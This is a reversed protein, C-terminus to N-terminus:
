KADHHRTLYQDFRFSYIFRPISCTKLSQSLNYYIYLTLTAIADQTGVKIRFGFQSSLFKQHPELFWELRRLTLKKFLKLINSALSVPYSLGSSASKGQKVIQIMKHESWEMPTIGTLLIKKFITCLWETGLYLMNQLPPNPIQVKGPASKNLKNMEQQVENISFSIHLSNDFPKVPTLSILINPENIKQAEVKSIFEDQHTKDLAKQKPKRTHKVKRLINWIEYIATPLNLKSCFKQWAPRKHFKVTRKTLAVNKEHEILNTSTAEPLYTKLKKKKEHIQQCKKAVM